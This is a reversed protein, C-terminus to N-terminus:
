WEQYKSMEKKAKNLIKNKKSVNVLQLEILKIKTELECMYCNSYKIDNLIHQNHSKTYLETLEIHSQKKSELIGVYLDKLNTLITEDNITAIYDSYDKLGDILYTNM